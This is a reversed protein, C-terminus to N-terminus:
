PPHSGMTAGVIEGMFEVQAAAIDMRIERGDAMSYTRQGQPVIGITELYRRPVLCDTAGTDVLFLGEWVQDPEALNRISVTVHPAGM